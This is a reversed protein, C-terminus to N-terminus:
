EFAQQVQSKLKEKSIHTYIATTSISEHGLFEAITKLDLGKDMLFTACSHRLLHPNVSRGITKKSVKSLLSHWGREKINFLPKDSNQQQSVEQQIFELTRQMLWPMIPVRREKDGKGIIKLEGAELPANKWKSWDFDYPNINLLEGLRLGGYFTLLTMIRNRNNEMARAIEHVQEKTLVQPYRKKKRGTIKPIDLSLVHDKVAQDFENTKIFLFINKLFARGVGNNNRQLFFTLYSQDVKEFNFKNYYYMYHKISRECLGKIELWEIFKAQIM